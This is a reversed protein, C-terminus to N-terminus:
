LNIKYIINLFNSVVWKDQDYKAKIDTRHLLNSQIEIEWNDNLSFRVPLSAGFALHSSANDIYGLGGGWDDSRNILNYELTPVIKIRDSVEIQKGVGFGFKWFDLRSFVEYNVTVEVKKNSVMGFKVLLDLEPKDQTPKSGVVANRVDFGSAFYVNQSYSIVVAFLSLVLTIGKKM